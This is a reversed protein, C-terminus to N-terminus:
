KILLMMLILNIHLHELIVKHTGIVECKEMYHRLLCIIDLILNEKTIYYHGLYINNYFILKLIVM